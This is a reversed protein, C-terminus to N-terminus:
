FRHITSLSQSKVFAGRRWCSGLVDGWVCERDRGGATQAIGLLNRSRDLAVTWYKGERERPAILYKGNGAGADLGISGPPISALFAAVVPWPKYRTSSFHHAINDYVSHVHEDEYSANSEGDPVSTAIVSKPPMHDHHNFPFSARTHLRAVAAM